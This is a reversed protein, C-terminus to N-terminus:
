SIMGAVTRRPAVLRGGFRGGRQDREAGVRLDHHHDGAPTARRGFSFTALQRTTRSSPTRVQLRAGLAPHRDRGAIAASVARALVRM